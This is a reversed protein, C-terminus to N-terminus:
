ATSVSLSIMSCVASANISCIAAASHPRAPTRTKAQATGNPANPDSMQGTRVGNKGNKGNEIEASRPM